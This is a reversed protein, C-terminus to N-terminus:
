PGGPTGQRDTTEENVAILADWGWYIFLCLIVGHVLGSLDGSAFPNFWDLGPQEGAPATGAAMASFAGWCFGGIAVVQLAILAYQLWASLQIGRAAIAASM